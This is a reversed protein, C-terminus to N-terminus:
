SSQVRFLNSFGDKIAEEDREKNDAGLDGWDGRQHRLFFELPTHRNETLTHIAGPIGVTRGLSFRPEAM